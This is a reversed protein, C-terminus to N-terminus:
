KMGLYKKIEQEDPKGKCIYLLRGKVAEQKQLDGATKYHDYLKLMPLVYNCNIMKVMGPSIDTYFAKEIYDLAYQQEFNRKMIAM